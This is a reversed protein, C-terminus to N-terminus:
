ISNRSLVVERGSYRSALDFLSDCLSRLPWGLINVATLSAVHFKNVYDAVLLINTFDKRSIAGVKTFETTVFFKLVGM